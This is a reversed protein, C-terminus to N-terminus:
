CVIPTDFGAKLPLENPRWLNSIRSIQPAGGPSREFFRTFRGANALDAGWVHRDLATVRRAGLREAAFSFYGDWAGIDLVTKGELSPLQMSALRKELAAATTRGPSVVGDGFDISHFWYPVADVLKQKEEKQM